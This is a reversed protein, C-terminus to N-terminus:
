VGFLLNDMGSAAAFYDEQHTPTAIFGHAIGLADRYQGVVQGRDNIDESVTQISGPPDIISFVGHNYVFTHTSESGDINESSYYGVVEGRENIGELYTEISGPPDITTFAGNDYIFGHRMNSSDRYNGAAEDRNNIGAWM